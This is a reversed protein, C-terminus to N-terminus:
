VRKKNKRKKLKADAGGDIQEVAEEEGGEMEDSAHGIASGNQDLSAHSEELSACLTKPDKPDQGETRLQQEPDDVWNWADKFEGKSFATAFFSLICAPSLYLLAPQGKGFVHMVAMTTILGAAYATLTAWFYPKSFTGKSSSSASKLFREHDYRLALAIFTGPLVVDGLGLLTYGRGSAFALSKPWLLKIPVDLSTAVTLMVETGFVWYIDYFFLGSLLVCGTKFSDIKLLSLANHAFSLALIDTLLVSKSSGESMSYLVSPIFAFPFMMITPTRFSASLLERPGKLILVRNRDFKRWRASGTILRALSVSSKWVSGVGAISFYWSLLWNIWEKGFYKVVMYMGFLAVSGAIPFMWADGSSLRDTIDESDEEDEDEDEAQLLSKTGKAPKKPAPLSGYAGAFISTLALCILGAYSSFLDWDISDM